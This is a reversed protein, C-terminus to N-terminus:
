LKSKRQMFNAVAQVFEETEFRKDLENLEHDCVMELKDFEFQSMLKKTVCLSDRPLKSLEELKPWLKTNLETTKYLQSIFGFQYAEAASLQHNLLLMEGAKSKGLIRPFTYSSCGEACLALSAFPTHFYAQM